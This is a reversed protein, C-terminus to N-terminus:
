EYKMGNEITDEILVTPVFGTGGTHIIGNEITDDVNNYQHWGIETHKIGNQVINEVQHYLPHKTSCTDGVKDLKKCMFSSMEKVGNEITDEVIENSYWNIGETSKVGNEITDEIIQTSMVQQKRIEKVGDKINENM